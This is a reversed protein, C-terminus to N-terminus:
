VDYIEHNFRHKSSVGIHKLSTNHLLKTQDGSTKILVSALLTSLSASGSSCWM